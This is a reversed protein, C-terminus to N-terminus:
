YAVVKDFDDKESLLVIFAEIEERGSEGKKVEVLAEWFTNGDADHYEALLRALRFDTGLLASELLQVHGPGPRQFINLDKFPITDPLPQPMEPPVSDTRQIDDLSAKFMALDHRGNRVHIAPPVIVQEIVGSYSLNNYTFEVRQGVLGTLRQVVTRGVLTGQLKASISVKPTAYLIDAAFSVLLLVCFCVKM